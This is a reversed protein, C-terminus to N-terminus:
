AKTYGDANEHRINYMKGGRILPLAVKRNLAEVRKMMKMSMQVDITSATQIMRQTKTTRTTRRSKMSDFYAYVICILACAMESVELMKWAEEIDMFQSMDEDNWILVREANQGRAFINRLSMPRSSDIIHITVKPDYTGFWDDDVLDFM